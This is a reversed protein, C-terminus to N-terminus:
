LKLFHKQQYIDIKYMDNTIVNDLLYEVLRDAFPYSSKDNLMLLTLDSLLYSNYAYM